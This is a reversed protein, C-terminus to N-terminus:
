HVLVFLQYFHQLNETYEKEHIEDIVIWSKTYDRLTQSNEDYIYINLNELNILNQFAASLAEIIDAPDSNQTLGVSVESLFALEKSQPDNQNFSESM